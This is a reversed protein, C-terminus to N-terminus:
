QPFYSGTGDNPVGGAPSDTVSNGSADNLESAMIHPSCFVPPLLFPLKSESLGSKLCSPAPPVSQAPHLLLLLLLLLEPLCEIASLQPAQGLQRASPVCLHDVLLRM